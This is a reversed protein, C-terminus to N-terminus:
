LDSSSTAQSTECSERYFLKIIINESIIQGAITLIFAIRVQSASTTKMTAQRVTVGTLFIDVAMKGGCKEKGGPCNIQCHEQGTRLFCRNLHWM